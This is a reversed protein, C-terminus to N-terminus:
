VFEICIYLISSNKEQIRISIVIEMDQLLNVSFSHIFSNSILKQPEAEYVKCILGCTQAQIVLILKQSAVYLTSCLVDAV